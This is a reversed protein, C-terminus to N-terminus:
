PATFSSFGCLQGTPNSLRDFKAAHRRLILVLVMPMQGPAEDPKPVHNPGARFRISPATMFKAAPM